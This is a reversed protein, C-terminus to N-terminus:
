QPAPGQPTAPFDCGPAGPRPGAVIEALTTRRFASEVMALADDLRKHLPCLDVGHSELGLPCTPIRQIPEVAAIVELLTLAEPSKVLTMGGGIGRRSRLIGARGLNQLVKSLYAKPVQTAEAIQDTNRLDPVCGALHVM